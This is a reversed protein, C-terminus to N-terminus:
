PLDPKERREATRREMLRRWWKKSMLVKDLTRGEPEENELHPSGRLM